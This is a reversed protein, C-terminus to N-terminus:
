WEEEDEELDEDSWAYAWDLEIPELGIVELDADCHPCILVEGLAPAKDFAIESDCDPCIASIV